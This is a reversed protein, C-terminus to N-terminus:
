RYKGKKIDNIRQTIWDDDPSFKIWPWNVKDITPAEFREEKRGDLPTVDDYGRSERKIYGKVKNLAGDLSKESNTIPWFFDTFNQLSKWRQAVTSVRPMPFKNKSIVARFKNDPTKYVHCVFVIFENTTSNKARSEAVYVCNFLTSEIHKRISILRPQLAIIIRFADEIDKEANAQQLGWSSGGCMLTNASMLKAHVLYDRTYILKKLYKKDQSNLLKTDVGDVNKLIIKESLFDMREILNGRMSSRIFEHLDNTSYSYETSIGARSAFIITAFNMFLLSELHMHLFVFPLFYAFEKMPGRQEFSEVALDMYTFPPIFPRRFKLEGLLGEENSM